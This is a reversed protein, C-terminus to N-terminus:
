GVDMPAVHWRVAFAMRCSCVGERRALHPMGYTKDFADTIGRIQLHQTTRSIGQRQLDLTDESRTHLFLRFTEVNGLPPCDTRSSVAGCTPTVAVIFRIM